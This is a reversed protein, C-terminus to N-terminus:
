REPFTNILFTVHLSSLITGAIIFTLVLFKFYDQAKLTGLLKPERALYAAAAYLEEGILTYDCTTIFFPIQTVADTGSIQIAGTVTGTETMILSEAYFMGMYFNTATKERIMIGNVGAVFAFQSTTIFFVSNKDYTDPRGAEYHAERVISQAIPLVIYDRCPVLIRTDYEAAKKAVKGLIALGALTAVDGIGSLGPVFLIPRGMETARGIANDIEQIGAIPRLYLDHGKRAKRIMFFVMFAFIATAILMVIKDTDFWNSVPYLWEEGGPNVYVASRNFRAEGDTKVMYYRFTRKVKHREAMLYRMRSKNSGFEFSRQMVPNELQRQAELLNDQLRAIQGDAGYLEGQGDIDGANNLAIWALTLQEKAEKNEPDALLAEEASVLHRALDGLEGDALAAAARFVALQETHTTRLEVLEATYEDIDASYEDRLSHYIDTRLDVEYEHDRLVDITTSVLVVQEDADYRGIGKFVNEVYSISDDLNRQSGQTKKVLTYQPDMMAQNYIFYSFDNVNEGQFILETPAMSRSETNWELNQVFAYNEGLEEDNDTRFRMVFTLPTSKYDTGEPLNVIIKSDQFFEDSTFIPEGEGAFNDYVDFYVNKITYLENTVIDYNVRLRTHDDDLFESKTLHVVPRGWMVSNYDGQDNPSDIIQFNDPLAPLDSEVLINKQPGDAYMFKVNSFTEAGGGDYLSFIFCYNEMAATDLAIDVDWDTDIIHSREDLEVVCSNPPLPALMRQERYIVNAPNEIAEPEVITLRPAFDTEAIAEGADIRETMLLPMEATASYKIRELLPRVLPEDAPGAEAIEALLEERADAMRSGPTMRTTFIFGELSEITSQAVAGGDRLVAIVNEIEAVVLERYNLAEMMFAAYDSQYTTFAEFAALDDKSMVYVSFYAVDAQVLPYEWEFQLWDKEAGDVFAAYFQDGILEPANDRPIGMAPEAHPYFRRSENVAVVTYWYPHNSKLKKYMSLQRIKLGAWVEDDEQEMTTDAPAEAPYVIKTSHHYFEDVPIVGLIRFHALMPGTINLDRPIERYLPSGEPQQREQKLRGPSNIGLFRSYDKDYFYMKEAAVGVEANVPINGIFFLSDPSLGRYVRYEIIREEKPLPAWSLILGSGDDDPVDEVLLNQVINEQANLFVVCALMSMIFLLPLHLRRM